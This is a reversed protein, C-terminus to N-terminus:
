LSLLRLLRGNTVVGWLHEHRNLYHPVLAHPSMTGRGAPPREGLAQDHAVIHNPPGQEERGPRHSIAYSQGDVVLARRQYRMAYGLAELLPMVRQARTITTASDGGASRTLRRQFADWYVRVDGWLTSAEDVITRRPELSFDRPAQGPAETISELFDPSLLGGEIRVTRSTM